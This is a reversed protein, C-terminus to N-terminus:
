QLRELQGGCQQMCVNIHIIITSSHLIFPLKFPAIKNCAVEKVVCFCNYSKLVHKLVKLCDHGLLTRLTNYPRQMGGHLDAKFPM